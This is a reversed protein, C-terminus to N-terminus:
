MERRAWMKVIREGVRCNKSRWGLIRLCRSVRMQEALSQDQLRVGIKESLIESASVTTRLAVYEAVSEHWVDDTYRALQEAKTDEAPTEWWTAGGNLADRAEAFLQERAKSIADTDVAQPCTIPWFRRAGTEDRNWDDRNTTGVFVCQRPHDKAHFGYAERYRDSPCSVVQKVKTVESKSFADMEGIEIVLKGQLTEFFGKGTVAEHQEAYWPGGIVRLARSKAQGQEGELVVVNDLQCGPRYIRALMGVWFNRSVSRTYANDPSGFHDPFFNAIREVGDWTLSDAWDRACNKVHRFAHGIVAKKITGVEIKTVGLSRQMYLTLNIDDADTWERPGKTPVHAADSPPFAANGTMIRQLFEDYWVLDRCNRDRELILTANNLNTVAAGRASMDLGLSLRREIQSTPEIEDQSSPGPEAVQSVHPPKVGQDSLWAAAAVDDWEDDDLAAAADWGDPMEQPPKLVTLLAGAAKVAKAAASAWPAAKAAWLLVHRGALPTLDTTELGASNGRWAVAVHSPLLEAAATAAQPSDCLCVPADPIDALTPLNWLPVPAPLDDWVFGVGNKVLTAEVQHGDHDFQYVWGHIEGNARYYAWRHTRDGYVPHSLPLTLEHPLTVGPADPVSM